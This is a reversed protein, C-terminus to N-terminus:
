TLVIVGCAAQRVGQRYCLGLAEELRAAYVSNVCQPPLSVEHLPLGLSEAQRRLRERRAGHMAIREYTGTVTTLLAVVRFHRQQQLTYLAMASDKGGSWCFLIPERTNTQM